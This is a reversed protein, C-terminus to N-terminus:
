RTSYCTHSPQTPETLLDPAPVLQETVTAIPVPTEPNALSTEIEVGHAVNEEPVPGETEPGVSEEQVSVEVDLKPIVIEKHASAEEKSTAVELAMILSEM